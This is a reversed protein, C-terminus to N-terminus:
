IHMSALANNYIRLGASGFSVASALKRRVITKTLSLLKATIFKNEIFFLFREIM